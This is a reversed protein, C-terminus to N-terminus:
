YSMINKSWATTEITDVINFMKDICQPKIYPNNFKYWLNAFIPFDLLNFGKLHFKLMKECGRDSNM